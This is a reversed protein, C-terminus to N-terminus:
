SATYPVTSRGPNSFTFLFAHALLPPEPATKKSALVSSPPVTVKAPLCPVSSTCLNGSPTSCRQRTRSHSKSGKVGRDDFPLTASSLSEESSDAVSSGDLVLFFFFFFLLAAKASLSEPSEELSSEASLSRRLFFSLFLFALFFFPRCCDDSSSSELSLRFFFSLVLSLSFCFSFSRSLLRPRSRSLSRRFLSSFFFRLSALARDELEERSLFFSLFPLDGLTDLFFFFSRARLSEASAPSELFRFFSEPLRWAVADSSFFISSLSTSLPM